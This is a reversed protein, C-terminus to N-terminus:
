KRRQMPIKASMPHYQKALRRYEKKLEESDLDDRFWQM